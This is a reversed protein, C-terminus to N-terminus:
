RKISTTKKNSNNKKVLPTADIMLSGLDLEQDQGNIAPMVLRLRAAKVGKRQDPDTSFEDSYSDIGYDDADLESVDEEAGKDSKLDLALLPQAATGGGSLIGHLEFLLQSWIEARSSSVSQRLILETLRQLKGRIDAPLEGTYNNIDLCISIQETILYSKNEASDGPPDATVEALKLIIKRTEETLNGTTTYVDLFAPLQEIGIEKRATSVWRILNSLLNVQPVNCTEARKNQKLAKEAGSEPETEEPESELSDDEKDETRGREGPMEGAMMGTDDDFDDIPETGPKGAEAQEPNQKLLDDLKPMQPISPFDPMNPLNGDPGFSQGQPEVPEQGGQSSPCGQLAETQDLEPKIVEEQIQPIKLDMLFDRVSSLTQKLESKILKFEDELVRIRDDSAM